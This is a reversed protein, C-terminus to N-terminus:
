GGRAGTWGPRERTRARLGRRGPLGAHEGAAPWSPASSSTRRRAPATCSPSTVDDLRPRRRHAGDVDAPTIGSGASLFLYKQPAPAATTFRGFPGSVPIRSARGCTTTCGTRCPVTPSVSSRSPSSRRTPHSPVRDHLLSEPAGRRGRSDSDPVPRSRVPLREARRTPAHLEHRRPDGADRRCVVLAQDLRRAGVPLRHSPTKPAM